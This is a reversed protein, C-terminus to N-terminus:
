TGFTTYNTINVQRIIQGVTDKEMEFYVTSVRQDQSAFARPRCARTGHLDDAGTSERHHQEAVKKEECRPGQSGNHKVGYGNKLM